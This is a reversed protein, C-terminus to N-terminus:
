YWNYSQSHGWAACPTGYTDSIYRLGWRIQTMPNTRWDSGASAMKSGPLSQPIGYASSTPNDATHKWGSEKTWLSDLCSFQSDGWGRAAVMAAAASRPDRSAVQEALRARQLDRSVRLTRERVATARMRAAAQQVRAAAATALRDRHRAAELGAGRERAELKAASPDSREAVLASGNATTRPPVVFAAEAVASHGLSSAAVGGSVAAVTAVAAAGALLPRRLSRRAVPARHRM